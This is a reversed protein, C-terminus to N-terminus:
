RSRIRYCLISRRRGMDKRSARGGNRHNRQLGNWSTLVNAGEAMEAVQNSAAENVVATDFYVTPILAGGSDRALFQRNERNNLLADLEFVSAYSYTKESSIMQDVIKQKLPDNMTVFGLTYETGALYLKTGMADAYNVPDGGCYGYLNLGGNFGIPDINPFAGIKPDYYRNRLYIQDTHADHFQAGYRPGSTNAIPNNFHDTTTVNGFADYHLKADFAGGNWLGTINGRGDQAYTLTQGATREWLPQSGPVFYHTTVNNTKQSVCAFGDHIYTTAAGAGVQVSKRMWTPGFYAYQTNIGGVSM